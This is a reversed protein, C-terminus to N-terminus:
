RCSAPLFKTGATADCDWIVLGNAKTTPTLTLGITEGDAAGSVTIMGSAATYTTGTVYPSTGDVSFGGLTTTTPWAVGGTVIMFESIGVKAPSAFAIIESGKARTTYIRYQPIAIAALIGIIAIVIMLEILTFGKQQRM